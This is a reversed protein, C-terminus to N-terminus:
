LMQKDEIEWLHDVVHWALRHVAYPMPWKTSENGEIAASRVANLISARRAATDGTNVAMPARRSIGLSTCYGQEAENIHSVINDRDRGGGRPGKQLASSSNAAVADFASWAAALLGTLREVTNNTLPVRHCEAISQPAGFDTTTGGVLREVVVVGANMPLRQGAAAAIPAYRQEYKALLELAIEETKASRCWGPWDLAFAFCKQSGREVAVSIPKPPNAVM